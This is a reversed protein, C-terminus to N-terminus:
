TTVTMVTDALLLATRRNNCRPYESQVSLMVVAASAPVALHLADHATLVCTRCSMIGKQTLYVPWVDTM